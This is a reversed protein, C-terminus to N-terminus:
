VLDIVDFDDELTIGEDRVEKSSPLAPLTDETQSDLYAQFFSKKVQEIGLFNKGNDHIDKVSEGQARRYIYDLVYVGCNYLDKQHRTTNEVTKYGPYKKSIFGYLQMVTLHDAKDVKRNAQDKISLGYSDYFEISQSKPDIVFTVIHDRLHGKIVFPIAIPKSDPNPLAELVASEDTYDIMGGTLSLLDEYYEVKDELTTKEEGVQLKAGKFVREFAANSLVGPKSLRKLAQKQNIDIECRTKITLQEPTLKYPKYYCNTWLNFIKSFLRSIRRFFSSDVLQVRGSLPTQHTAKRAEHFGLDEHRADFLEEYGSSGPLEM